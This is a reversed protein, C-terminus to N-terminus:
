ALLYDHFYTFKVVCFRGYPFACNLAHLYNFIILWVSSETYAIVAFSTIYLEHNYGLVGGFGCLKFRLCPLSPIVAINLISSDIFVISAIDAPAIVLTPVNKLPAILLNLIVIADTGTRLISYRCMTNVAKTMPIAPATPPNIM